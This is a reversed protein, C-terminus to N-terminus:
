WLGGAGLHHYNCVIATYLQGREQPEIGVHRPNRLLNNDYFSHVQLLVYSFLRTSRFTISTYKISHAQMAATYNKGNVLETRRQTRMCVHLRQAPARYLNASKETTACIASLNVDSVSHGVSQSSFPLM